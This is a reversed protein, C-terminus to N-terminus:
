KLASRCECLAKELHGRIEPAVQLLDPHHDNIFNLGDPGYRSKLLKVPQVYRSKRIKGKRPTGTFLVWTDDDEHMLYDQKLMCDAKKDFSYIGISQKVGQLLPKDVVSIAHTAVFRDRVIIKLADRVETHVRLWTRIQPSFPEQDLLEEVTTIRKSLNGGFSLNAKLDLEYKVM